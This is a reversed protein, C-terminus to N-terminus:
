VRFVRGVAGAEGLNAAIWGCAEGAAADVEPANILVMASGNIRMPDSLPRLRVEAVTVAGALRAEVTRLFRDFTELDKLPLWIAAAVGPSQALRGALAGLRDYEDGSEFPPDVLLLGPRGSALFGEAEGYGDRRFTRVQVGGRASAERLSAALAEYEDPRLECGVYSDGAALAQVTLIPSGPYWRLPGSSNLRRVAAVLPAFAPPADAAAALRVIGAEAEGSRRAAEDQLDYVGAGAHTDVVTLPLEGDKLRALLQM